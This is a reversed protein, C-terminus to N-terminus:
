ATAVRGRRRLAAGTMAFGGLMLAWTAPEPVAAVDAPTIATDYIRISDIDGHYFEDYPAFQRGFRTTSGTAYATAQNSGSFVLQGDVYLKSAGPETTFLFEHMGGPFAVGTNFYYDTARINGNQLGLYTGTGGTQGQSIIEAIAGVSSLSNTRVYISYASNVPVLYASFNVWDNVGELHLQGGGVYAGDMLTGDDHGATDIVANAGEFEYAHIAAVPGPAPLANAASAALLATAALTFRIM